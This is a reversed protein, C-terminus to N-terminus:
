PLMQIGIITPIIECFIFESYSTFVTQHGSVERLKGPRVNQFLVEDTVAPYSQKTLSRHLIQVMQLEVGGPFTSKTLLFELEYARVQCAELAWIALLSMVLLIGVDGFSMLQDSCNELYLGVHVATHVM